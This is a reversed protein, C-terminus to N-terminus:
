NKNLTVCVIEHVMLKTEDESLKAVDLKVWEPFNKKNANKFQSLYGDRVRRHFELKEEDFRTCHGETSKNKRELGVEPNIDLYIVLDPVIKSKAVNNLLSFTEMVNKRKRGFIQYAITSMDFRDSIIHKGGLIAPKILEDVNQARAACFLFLETLVSMSKNTKDMLVARIKESIDTGGPERTFVISNNESFKKKLYEICIGKGAGEGGEIVIFKGKQNAM